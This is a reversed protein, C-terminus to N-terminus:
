KTHRFVIGMPGSNGDQCSQRFVSRVSNLLGLLSLSLSILLFIRGLLDFAM